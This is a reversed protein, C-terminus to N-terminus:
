FSVTSSDMKEPSEEEAPQPSYLPLAPFTVPCHLLCEGVLLFIVNLICFTQLLNRQRPCQVRLSRPSECAMECFQRAGHGRARAAAAVAAPSHGVGQEVSRPLPGWTGGARLLLQSACPTGGVPCCGLPQGSSGRAGVAWRRVAASSNPVLGLPPKHSVFWLPKCCAGSLGPATLRARQHWRLVALRFSPIKWFTVEGQALRNRGGSFM